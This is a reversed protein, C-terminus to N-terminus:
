GVATEDRAPTTYADLAIDLDVAAAIMEDQVAIMEPSWEDVDLQNCLAIHKRNVQQDRLAAQVVALMRWREAHMDLWDRCVGTIHDGLISQGRLRMDHILDEVQESTVRM